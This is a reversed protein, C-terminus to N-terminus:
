GCMQPPQNMDTRTARYSYERRLTPTGYSVKGYIAFKTISEIMFYANEAAVCSSALDDCVLLSFDQSQPGLTWGREWDAGWSGDARVIVFHDNADLALSFGGGEAAGCDSHAVGAIVESNTRPFSTCGVISLCMLVLFRM